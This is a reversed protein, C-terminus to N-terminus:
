ALPLSRLSLPSVAGPAAHLLRGDRYEKPWRNRAPGLRAERPADPHLARRGEVLRENSVAEARDRRPRTEARLEPDGSVYVMGEDRRQGFLERAVKLTKAKTSEPASRAKELPSKM